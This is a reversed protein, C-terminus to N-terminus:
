TTRGYDLMINNKKQKNRINIRRQFKWNDRQNKKLSDKIKKVKIKQFNQM